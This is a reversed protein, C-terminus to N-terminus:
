RTQHAEGIEQGPQDKDQDAPESVHPASSLPGSASATKELSTPTDSLQDAQLTPNILEKNPEAFGSGTWFMRLEKRWLAIVFSTIVTCPVLYLLAPQGRQMWALAVFTILLGIGYAITCAVFYIRSSQVQIDFRHCYAVLLGPVLIDGFGLLSFPRDCLALPSSNLRPVKLVMPLKEHTTSDSPGAAVEVM